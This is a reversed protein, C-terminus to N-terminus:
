TSTVPIEIVNTNIYTYIKLNQIEEMAQPFTVHIYWAM